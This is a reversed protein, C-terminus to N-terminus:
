GGPVAYPLDLLQLEPGQSLRLAGARVSEIQVVALLEYGGEPSPAASVVRGVSGTSGSTSASAPAPAFLEDGPKPAVETEVRARYMRRKLTGLYHMRAVIEQGTYCGKTFSIGGLQSLNMMQPVFADATQPYVAPLGARIELWNWAPAGVPTCRSGLHDWLGKMAEIDDSLVEFRPPEGRVRIVTFPGAQATMDPQTPLEAVRERLAQEAGEGSIGLHVFAASADELIVKSRMVYMRLRKLTAELTDCALALYISDGRMFLRMLALARGKPSCYAALLSRRASLERMDNTVQGQLFAVTDEGRAVILGVQSLDAIVDGQAAHQLESVADGFGRVTEGTYRAGRSTLFTRWEATM